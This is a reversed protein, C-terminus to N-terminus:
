VWVGQGEVKFEALSGPQTGCERSGWKWPLVTGAGDCAMGELNYREQFETTRLTPRMRWFEKEDGNGSCPKWLL